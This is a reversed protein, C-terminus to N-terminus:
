VIDPELPQVGRVGMANMSAALIVNPDTTCRVDIWYDVYADAAELAENIHKSGWGARSDSPMVLFERLTIAELLRILSVRTDTGQARRYATALYHFDEFALVREVARLGLGKPRKSCWGGGAPCRHATM